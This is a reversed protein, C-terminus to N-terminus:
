LYINGTEIAPTIHFPEPTLFYFGGKSVRVRERLFGRMWFPINRKLHATKLYYILKHLSSISFGIIRM